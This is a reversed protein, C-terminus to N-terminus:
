TDILAHRMCCVGAHVLTAKDNMESCCVVCVFALVYVRLSSSVYLTSVFASKQKSVVEALDRAHVLTAKENMERQLEINKLHLEVTRNELAQM